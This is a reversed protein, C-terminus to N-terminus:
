EDFNAGVVEYPFSVKHLPEFYIDDVARYMDGDCMVYYNETDVQQYVKNGNDDNTIHMLQKPGDGESMVDGESEAYVKAAMKDLDPTGNGWTGVKHGDKDFVKIVSLGEKHDLEVAEYTFPDPNPDDESAFRDQDTLIRALKKAYETPMQDVRTGGINVGSEHIDEDGEAPTIEYKTLGLSEAYHKLEDRSNSGVSKPQGSKDVFHMQFPKDDPKNSIFEELPAESLSKIFTANPFMSKVHRRAAGINKARFFMEVVDQMGDSYGGNREFEVPEDLEAYARYVPEGLGWYAGSKDYARDTRDMISEVEFAAPISKDVPISDGRGMQSGTPVFNGSADKFGKIGSSLKPMAMEKIVKKKVEEPFQSVKTKGEKILKKVEKRLGESLSNIKLKKNSAPDAELKALKIFRNRENM